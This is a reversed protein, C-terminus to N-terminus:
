PVCVLISVCVCVGFKQGMEQKGAPMDIYRIIKLLSVMAVDSYSIMRSEKCDHSFNLVISKWTVDMKVGYVVLVKEFICVSFRFSVKAMVFWKLWSIARVLM